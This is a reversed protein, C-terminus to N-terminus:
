SDTSLCLWWGPFTINSPGTNSHDLIVVSGVGPTVAAHMAAVGANKTVVRWVGQTAEVEPVVAQLTVVALTVVALSRRWSDM